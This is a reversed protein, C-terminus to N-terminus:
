SPTPLGLARAVVAESVKRALTLGTITPNVSGVTVFLAQDACYANSVHHFRGNPDTVSTAPNTGMWLAGSEHYTSGLPDRQPDGMQLDAANGNALAQALSVMCSEMVKALNEEDPTTTFQVYARSMGFEDVEFPSLNIWRGASNPISSTKDGTLESAGRFALSIWDADQMSLVADLDDIDPIMTYLLADSNGGTDASATVQIQFKGQQAAGRILLAATQLLLPLTHAPDLASRRVKFYMNSRIHSILNRGMLEDVHSGVSTPFSLLALRTSEIMGAALIISCDAGIPLFKETGNVSAHLGTVRGNMEAMRTVHANPVIFLRREADSQRAAERVADILVTVSSYKDFAFLGSAPSQGQVALPPDEVSSVSENQGVSVFRAKLLEFLPGQIFDTTEAVGVQRELTPYHQTFYQAVSPPWSILDDPQLRPCWGGWYLSKGGVCYAQGVFEVNSRWPIGWVLDRPQGDDMSPHVANPVDLGARPLNQVHTPVLFPGAELVLVRLPRHGDSRAIKDACYGGFMGSGIVIVDFPAGGNNAAEEWTSCVFRGMVDISLTTRQVDPPPEIPQDTDALRNLPVPLTGTDIKRL